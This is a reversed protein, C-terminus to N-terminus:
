KLIEMMYDSAEKSNHMRSLRAVIERRAQADKQSRALAVLSKGNNHSHLADLIARKVAPDSESAYLAVLADGSTSAGLARIASLRLKPEKETKAVELLRETAGAERLKHLLAEKVDVASEAQYLQWLDASAVSSGLMHVAERRLAPTKEAKLIRVIEEPAQSSGLARLVARKVHEDSTANYIERLLPRNDTRRSGLYRIAVIQLDPNGLTGRAAQALQDRSRQSDSNSLAQLARDKLRPYPSAKLVQEVTAAARDPDAQILGSLAMVKLDEEADWQAATKQGADQKIAAELSQADALWRSSGHSKRLEALAALAEDRRALRHLTFAKWYLAGDSRSGTTAAAQAFHDLAQEYRRAGIAGVGRQYSSEHSNTPGHFLAKQSFAFPMRSDLKSMAASVKASVDTAIKTQLAALEAHHTGFKYHFDVLDRFDFTTPAPPTPPPPPAQACLATTATLLLITRNM